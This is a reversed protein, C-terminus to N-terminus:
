KVLKGWFVFKWCMVMVYHVIICPYISRTWVLLISCYVGLMTVASLFRWDSFVEFYARRFLFATAPHAIVFIFTSICCRAWFGTSWLKLNPPFFVPRYISEELLAPIIIYVFSMRILYWLNYELQKWDLFGTWHLFAYVVGSWVVFTCLFM